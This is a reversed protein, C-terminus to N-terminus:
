IHRRVNSQTMGYPSLVIFVNESPGKQPWTQLAGGFELCKTAQPGAAPAKEGCRFSSKSIRLRTHGTSGAAPAKRGGLLRKQVIRLKTHGTSGAASTKQQGFPIKKSLELGQTVQPDQRLRKKGVLVTNKKASNSLPVNKPSKHPFPIGWSNPLPM